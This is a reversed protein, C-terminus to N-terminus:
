TRRVIENKYYQNNRNSYSGREVKMHLMIGHDQINVKEFFLAM